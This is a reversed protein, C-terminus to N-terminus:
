VPDADALPLRLRLSAGGLDTDAVSVAGGHDLVIKKVIALGLGTGQERTTVYPEFVEDRRPPAVGPGNDDVRLEVWGEEVFEVTVRVHVPSVERERTSLVANEVLNVLVQKLLQRDGRIVISGAPEVVELWDGEDDSLHGYSREFEALLQALDLLELQVSPLRAFQSFSHVLRRIVAVEDDIIEVSDRLVSALRSDARVAHREGEHKLQAAALQIPTLPNKIEHAIRRAIDQWAGIRELYAVKDRAQGLEDLMTNLDRALQGIEDLGYRQARARTDGRAVRRMVTSVESVRRTVTRAVVVGAAVAVLLVLGSAAALAVVVAGVVRERDVRTGEVVVTDLEGRLTGLSELESTLVPSVWHTVVIDFADHGPVSARVETSLPRQAGFRGANPPSAEGGVDILTQEGRRLSVAAVDDVLHTSLEVVIARRVRPDDPQSGRSRARGVGSSARPDVAEVGGPTVVPGPIEESELTASLRQPVARDATGDAGALSDQGAYAREWARAVAAAVQEARLRYNDRSATVLQGYLVESHAVLETAREAQSAGVEDFYRVTLQVLYGSAGLAAIGFCLLALMVRTQLRRLWAVSRDGLVGRRRTARGDSARMSREKM